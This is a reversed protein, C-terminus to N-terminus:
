AAGLGARLQAVRRAIGDLAHALSERERADIRGDAEATLVALTLGAVRTGLEAVAPARPGREAEAVPDVVVRCGFREVIPGFVAAAGFVDALAVLEDLDIRRTGNEFRSIESRDCGAVDGIRTNTPRGAPDASRISTLVASHLTAREIPTM